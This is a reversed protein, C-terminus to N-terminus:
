KWREKERWKKMVKRMRINWIKKKFREKNNKLKKEM